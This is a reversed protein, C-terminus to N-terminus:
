AKFQVVNMALFNLTIERNKANQEMANVNDTFAVGSVTIFMPADVLSKKFRITMVVAEHPLETIDTFGAAQAARNMADLEFGLVKINGKYSVNGEQIDLPQSGAGYLHEKEVEKNIEFGRAGRISRGLINIEIQKWACESTRVNTNM